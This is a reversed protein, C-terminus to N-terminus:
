IIMLRLNKLSKRIILYTRPCLQHFQLGNFTLPKISRAIEDLEGRVNRVM